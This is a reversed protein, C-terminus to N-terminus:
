SLSRAPKAVPEIVLVLAGNGTIHCISLQMPNAFNQFEGTVQNNEGFIITIKPKLPNLLVGGQPITM